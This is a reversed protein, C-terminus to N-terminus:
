TQILLKLHLKTSHFIIAFIDSEHNNERLIFNIDQLIHIFLNASKHIDSKTMLVSIFIEESISRKIVNEAIM